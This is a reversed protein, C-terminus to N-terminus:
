SIPTMRTAADVKPPIRQFLACAQEIDSADNSRSLEMASRAIALLAPSPPQEPWDWPEIQHLECSLAASRETLAPAKTVQSCEQLESRPSPGAPSFGLGCERQQVFGCSNPEPLKPEPALQSSFCGLSIALVFLLNSRWGTRLTM